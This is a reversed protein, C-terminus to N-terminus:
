LRQLVKVQRPNIVLPEYVTPVHALNRGYNDAPMPHPTRYDAEVTLLKDRSLARQLAQTATRLPMNVIAVEGGGFGISTREDSM